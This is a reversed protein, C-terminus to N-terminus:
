APFVLVLIYGTRSSFSAFGSEIIKQSITASTAAFSVRHKQLHIVNKIIARLMPAGGRTDTSTQFKLM